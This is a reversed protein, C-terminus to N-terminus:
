RNQNTLMHTAPIAKQGTALRRERRMRFDGEIYYDISADDLSKVPLTPLMLRAM